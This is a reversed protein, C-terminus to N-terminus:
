VRINDPSNDMGNGTFRRGEPQASHREGTVRFGRTILFQARQDEADPMWRPITREAAEYAQQLAPDATHLALTGTMTGTLRGDPGFIWRVVCRYAKCQPPSTEHITCLIREGSPRLFLCADPHQGIWSRDPFLHRKDPDVRAFFPTGTAVSNCLFEFDGLDEEISICEGMYLCCKGCQLCTFSM